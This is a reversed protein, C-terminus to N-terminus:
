HGCHSFRPYHHITPLNTTDHSFTLITFDKLPFVVEQYAVDHLSFVCYVIISSMFPWNQFISKDKEKGTGCSEIELVEVNNTSEISDNHNHLTEQLSAFMKKTLPVKLV